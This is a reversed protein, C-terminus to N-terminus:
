PTGFLHPPLSYPAPPLALNELRKRNLEELQRARDAELEASRKQVEYKWAQVWDMQIAMPVFVGNSNVYLQYIPYGEDDTDGTAAVRAHRLIKQPEGSEIADAMAESVLVVDGTGVASAVFNAFFRRNWQGTPDNPVAAVTEFAQKKSMLAPGDTPAAGDAADGPITTWSPTMTASWDAVVREVLRELGSEDLSPSRQLANMVRDTLDKYARISVAGQGGSTLNMRKIGPALTIWEGIEAAPLVVSTEDVQDMVMGNVATRMERVSDYGFIPPLEATTRQQPAALDRASQWSKTTPVGGLTTENLADWFPLADGLMTSLNARGGPTAQMARYAALGRTAEMADPMQDYSLAGKMQEVVSSPLLGINSLREMLHAFLAPDQTGWVNGGLRLDLEDGIGATWRGGGNQIIKLIDRETGGPQSGFNGEQASLLTGALEADAQGAFYEEIFTSRQQSALTNARTLYTRAADYGYHQLIQGTEELTGELTIREGSLFSAELEFLKQDMAASEARAAQARGYSDIQAQNTAMSDIKGALWDREEPSFSNWEERWGQSGPGERLSQAVRMGVGPDRDRTEFTLAALANQLSQVQQLAPLDLDGIYGIELGQGIQVDLEAQAEVARPDGAALYTALESGTRQLNDQWLKVGSEWDRKAIANEIQGTYDLVAARLSSEVIGRVAPDVQEMTKDVYASASSSFGEPDMPNLRYFEALKAQTTTRTEDLYRQKMMRSYTAGYLTVENEILPMQPLGNEDRAFQHSAADKEAQLQRQLRLGGYATDALNGATRAVEGWTYAQANLLSLAPVMRDTAVNGLPSVTGSPTLRPLMAM